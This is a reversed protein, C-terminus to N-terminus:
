FGSFPGSEDKKNEEFSDFPKEQNKSSNFSSFVTFGNNRSNIFEEYKRREEKIALYYNASSASIYIDVPIYVIMSLVNGIILLLNDSPILSWILMNAVGTLIIWGIFSILFSFYHGKFGNMLKESERLAKNYGCEPNEAKIYKAMSYSFFKIVGPVIFLLGWLFVKVSILLNLIFGEKLRRFLRKWDKSEIDGGKSVDLFVTALSIIFIGSIIGGVITIISYVMLALNVSMYNQLYMEAKEMGEQTTMDIEAMAQEIRLLEARLDITLYDYLCTFVTSILGVILLIIGLSIWKNKVDKLAKEKLKYSIIM